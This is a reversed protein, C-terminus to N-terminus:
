RYSALHRLRRELDVGLRLSVPNSKAPRVPRPPTSPLLGAAELGAANAKTM